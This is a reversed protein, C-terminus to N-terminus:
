GRILRYKRSHCPSSSNGGRAVTSSSRGMSLARAASAIQAKILRTVVARNSPGPLHIPFDSDSSNPLRIASPPFHFASLALRMACPLYFSSFPFDSNNSKPNQIESHPNFPYLETPLYPCHEATLRLTSRLLSLKISSFIQFFSHRMIFTSYTNLM